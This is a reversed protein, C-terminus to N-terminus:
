MGCQTEDSNDLCDPYSDCWQESRVCQSNDCTTYEGADCPQRVSIDNVLNVTRMYDICM